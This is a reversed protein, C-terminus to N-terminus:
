GRQPTWLVAHLFSLGIIQSKENIAIAESDQGDLTGLDRM